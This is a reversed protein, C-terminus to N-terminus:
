HSEGTNKEDNSKKLLGSRAASHLFAGDIQWFSSGAAAQRMLVVLDLGDRFREERLRFCERTLRKLRHRVVSNGVKKSVSIGLRNFGLGNELHYLVFFRNGCSRGKRYVRKFDDNKRLREMFLYLVM